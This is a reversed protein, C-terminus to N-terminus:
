NDKTDTKETHDYRYHNAPTHIPHEPSLWCCHYKGERVYRSCGGRWEGSFGAVRLKAISRRRHIMVTTQTTMTMAAPTTAQLNYVGSAAVSAGKGGRMPFTVVPHGRTDYRIDCDGKTAGATDCVLTVQTETELDPVREIAGEVTTMTEVVISPEGDRERDRADCGRRDDKDEVPVRKDTYTSTVEADTDTLLELPTDGETELTPGEHCPDTEGDASRTEDADLTYVTEEATVPTATVRLLLAVSTAETNATSVGLQM